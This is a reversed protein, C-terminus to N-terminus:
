DKVGVDQASVFFLFSVCSLSRTPDGPRMHLQYARSSTLVQYCNLLLNSILPLLLLLVLWRSDGNRRSSGSIQLVM